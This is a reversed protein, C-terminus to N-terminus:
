SRDTKIVLVPKNARRVVRRVTSGLVTDHFVSHGFHGLIILDYDNEDAFTVIKEVPNGVQVEVDYKIYTKDPTKDHISECYEGINNTIEVNDRKRDILIQRAEQLDRAKIKEWLDEDMYGVLEKALDPGEDVAHFVTLKAGYRRSLSAAYAFASRGGETLDTTYLIKKFLIETVEM